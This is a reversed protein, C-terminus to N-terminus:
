QDVLAIEQKIKSIKKYFPKNKKVEASLTDMASKAENISEFSGFTVVWWIKNNRKTQYTHTQQQLNFQAIFNDSVEQQTVALLQIVSNTDTQQMYWINDQSIQTQEATDVKKVKLAKSKVYSSVGNKNKASDDIDNDLVSVTNASETLSQMIAPVDNTHERGPKIDPEVVEPKNLGIISDSQKIVPDNVQEVSIATNVIKAEEQQYYQQWWQTMDSKYLLGIILLMILLMLILLHLRWSVKDKVIIDAVHESPQWALLLSPNGHAEALFTSFVPDEDYPLDTFYWQLLMKSERLTLPELYIEVANNLALKSQSAIIIYLTNPSNKSLLELEILMEESLQRGGDLVWLCPGCPQKDLLQYYNEPLSLNHDILPSNFSQELLDSMLQADSMKASVQVFAKNFDNYKDTIFTELMYSKGLGSTGLLVILNQGYEFQLAIRDVLAARSPLIQSQM